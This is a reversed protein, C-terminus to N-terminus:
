PTWAASPGRWASYLQRALRFPRPLAHLPVIWPGLKRVEWRGPDSPTLTRHWLYRVRDRMREQSRLTFRDRDFRNALSWGEPERDLLEVVEGALQAVTPDSRIRHRLSAPVPADLLDVALQLGLATARRIGLGSARDMVEDWDIEDSQRILEALGALWELRDWRHKAGHVILMLILDEPHFVPVCREHLDVTRLRDWTHDLDLDFAIERNTFRWHLEVQGGDDRLWEEHYRHRIMFQVEADDLTVRPAYGLGALLRRADHVDQPRVVIDLDGFIRLAASGYLQSGLAPGKYPVVVLDEASFADLIEFLEGTRKLAWLANSHRARGLEEDINTPVLDRVSRLHLAVLPTLRHRRALSVLRDWDIGPEVLGRARRRDQGSLGRRAFLRVLQMETAASPTEDQSGEEEPRGTM